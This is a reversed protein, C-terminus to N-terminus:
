SRKGAYFTGHVAQATNQSYTPARGHTTSPGCPACREARHFKRRVDVLQPAPPLEAEAAAFFSDTGSRVRHPLSSPAASSATSARFPGLHKRSEVQIHPHAASSSEVGKGKLFRGAPPCM